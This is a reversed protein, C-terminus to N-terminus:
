WVSIPSTRTGNTRADLAYIITDDERGTRLMAMVFASPAKLPALSRHWVKANFTVGITGPVEFARASALDPQGDAQSSSVVVLYPSGSHPLFTQDSFPHHELRTVKLPLSVSESLHVWEIVPLTAMSGKFFASSADAIAVGAEHRILRGFPAFAKESIPKMKITM